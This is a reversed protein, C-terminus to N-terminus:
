FYTTAKSEEYVDRANRKVLNKAYEKERKRLKAEETLKPQDKWSARGNNKKSQAEIVKQFELM